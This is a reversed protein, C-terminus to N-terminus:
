KYIVVLAGSVAPLFTKYLTHAENKACKGIYASLKRELAALGSIFFLLTSSPFSNSSVVGFRAGIFNRTAIKVSRPHM